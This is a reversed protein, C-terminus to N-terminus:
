VLVSVLNFIQLYGAFLLACNQLGNMALLALLPLMSWV